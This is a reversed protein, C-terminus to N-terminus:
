PYQNSITAVESVLGEMKTSEQKDEEYFFGRSPQIEIPSMWEELDKDLQWQYQFYGEM